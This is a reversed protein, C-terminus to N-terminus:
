KFNFSFTYFGLKKKIYYICVVNLVVNTVLSAFASGNIGYTPILVFNLIVNLFFCFFTINRLINQNNTMNLIQDCNGCIASILVGVSVIILTSAGQIAEENFYSLIYSSFIILGAVIPITLVAIIKTSNQVLKRLGELNGTGYFQAIMPTIITGFSVIVLFGVTGVKYAVNYIGIQNEDVMTGLIIVDTWNLLYLLLSSFMMPSATALLEKSTISSEIKESVKFEFIVIAEFIIVLLISIAYALFTYPGSFDFYYFLLLSAILFLNPLVFMFLNFKIFNRTAIFFYLFLEHLISLPLAVATIVFYPVLLENKFVTTSFFSAGAYFIVVPLIAFYCTIKIGRKLLSKAQRLDMNHNGVIKILAAPIGLAFIMACAQCITFILSYNGFNALGFFRTILITSLFSTALGFIRFILTIGSSSIVKKFNQSVPNM